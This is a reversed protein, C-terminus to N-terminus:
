VDMGLERMAHIVQEREKFVIGHIGQEEAAQINVPTDDIFVCEEPKLRYRDLLLQYIRSDPKSLQDKWSLIGGDMYPIFALADSCDEEAKKSFNSLYWVHYGKAKLEQVWPVAYDRITVMGHVDDYALHLEREIEPDNKLFVEMLEAESMVGRDFEAWLPSEVSAKGIRQVMEGDFGKDRLFEKWRFDTLVNGIDFIVNHIM